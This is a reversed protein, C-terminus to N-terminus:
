KKIPIILGLYDVDEPSSIVIAKTAEGIHLVVEDVSIQELLTLMKHAMITVETVEGTYDGPINVSIKRGMDPDECEFHIRGTEKKLLMTTLKKEDSSLCAKHMADVLALRQVKLNAPFDPIFRKYDPYKDEHRTCWVTITESKVAIQKTSWSLEVAELGEMAKAFKSSILLQETVPSEAAVKHKYICVKDSSVINIEGNMDVCGRTLAPFKTEEEQSVTRMAKTLFPIFHEDVQLTNKKPVAPTNPYEELKDLSNLEYSDNMGIIRAKRTSPHEIWIPASKILSTVKNLFDFPILMEFPEGETGAVCKCSITLESDSTILEVEQKTVKCYINKLAPLISKSNVAQSLKKLAPKLKESDIVFKKM